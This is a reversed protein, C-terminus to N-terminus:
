QARQRHPRRNVTLALYGLDLLVVGAIALLVLQRPSGTFALAGSASKKATTTTTNSKQPSTTSPSTGGTTTGGASPPKSTTTIPATTSTTTTTSTPPPASSFTIVQTAQENATDGFAIVCSVGATIQAATPPCPFNAADTAAPNGDSDTGTGPPGVVGAHVTFPTTPVNGSGDTKVLSNIPNTCSVPVQNGFVSVTPQPKADNCEIISGQTSPTFGSGSVNVTQGDTLNTNPNVSISVAAGAPLVTFGVGGGAVALANITIIVKAIAGFRRSRTRDLM